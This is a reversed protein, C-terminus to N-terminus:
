NVNEMLSLIEAQAYLNEFPTHDPVECGAMHICYDGGMQLSNRTEQKVLDVSGNLLVAVPDINGCVIPHKGYISFADRLSVMWDLDIIDAGSNQMDPLIQTTNGCIHLRPIAGSKKITDFIQQEYPLAFQRYMDPSIQSAAADGLGVIDAGAEVQAKAFIKAQESCFALLELVWDPDEYLDMMLQNLGRLDAAEALAGEVWGLIPFEGGAKERFLRIAQLRDHMRKGNEPKVIRLKKLDTKDLLLPVRSVPLSDDPFEIIAGLDHAERYPDSIAQLIDIGFDNAVAFNAEVLVRFDLYYSSLKKNIYHAAFAMMINFNPVRDVALGQMRNHFREYANM